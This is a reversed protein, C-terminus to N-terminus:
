SNENYKRHYFQIYQIYHMNSINNNKISVYRNNKKFLLLSSNNIPIKVDIIKGNFGWMEEPMVHIHALTNFCEINDMDHIFKSEMILSEKEEETDVLIKIM